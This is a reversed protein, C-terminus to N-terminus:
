KGRRITRPREFVLRYYHHGQELVEGNFLYVRGAQPDNDPDRKMRLGFVASSIGSYDPDNQDRLTFVEVREPTEITSGSEDRRQEPTISAVVPRWDNPADATAIQVPEGVERLTHRYARLKQNLFSTRSM